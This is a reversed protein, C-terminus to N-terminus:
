KRDLITTNMWMQSYEASGRETRSIAGLDTSSVTWTEAAEPAAGLSKRFWVEKSGQDLRARSSM